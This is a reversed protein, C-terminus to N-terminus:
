SLELSLFKDIDYESSRACCCKGSCLKVRWQAVVSEIKGASQSTIISGILESAKNLVYHLTVDHAAHLLVVRSASFRWNNQKKLKRLQRQCKLRSHSFFYKANQPKAHINRALQDNLTFCKSLLLHDLVTHVYWSKIDEGFFTLKTINSLLLVM